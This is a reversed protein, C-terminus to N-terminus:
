RREIKVRLIGNKAESVMLGNIHEDEENWPVFIDRIRQKNEDLLIITDIDNYGLIRGLIEPRDEVNNSISNYPFLGLPEEHYYRYHQVESDKEYSIALLVHQASCTSLPDYKVPELKGFDMSIVRKIPIVISEYNEFVIEIFKTNKLDNYIGIRHYLSLFIEKETDNFSESNVYLDMLGQKLLDREVDSLSITEKNNSLEM